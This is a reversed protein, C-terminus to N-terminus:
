FGFNLVFRVWWSCHFTKTWLNNNHRIYSYYNSDTCIFKWLMFNLKYYITSLFYLVFIVFYTIWSSKLLTHCMIITDTKIVNELSHCTKWYRFLFFITFLLLLFFANNYYQFSFSSFYRKFLHFVHLIIVYFASVFYGICCQM